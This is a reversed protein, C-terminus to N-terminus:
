YPWVIKRCATCAYVQPYPPEGMALEPTLLIANHKEMQKQTYLLPSREGEPLFFNGGRGRMVGQTMEKGCWPCTM